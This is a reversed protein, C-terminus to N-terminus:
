GGSLPPMFAVEEIGDPLIKDALISKNIIMRITPEALQEALESNDGAIFAILEEPTTMAPLDTLREAGGALDKLWGLFVIKTMRGNHVM